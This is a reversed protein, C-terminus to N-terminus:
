RGVRKGSGGCEYCRGGDVHRFQPVFGTGGCRPCTDAPLAELDLTAGTFTFTVAYGAGGAVKQWSHRFCWAEVQREDLDFSEPAYATGAVIAEFGWRGEDGKVLAQRVQADREPTTTMDIRSGPLAARLMGPGPVGQHTTTTM